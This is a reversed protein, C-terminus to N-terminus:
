SRGALSAISFGLGLSSDIVGWTGAEASGALPMGMLVAVLSAVSLRLKRRLM